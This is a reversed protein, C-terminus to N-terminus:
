VCTLSCSSVRGCESPVHHCHELIVRQCLLDSMACQPFDRIQSNRLSPFTRYCTSCRLESLFGDADQSVGASSREDAETVIAEMM